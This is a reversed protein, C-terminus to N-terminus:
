FDTKVSVLGDDTSEIRIVFSFRNRDICMWFDKEPFVDRLEPDFFHRGGGTRLAQLREEIDPMAEGTLLSQLYLACLEDEEAPALGEKGMCVLTVIEPNRQRIYGAIAQANVFSGTLIEEAHIANAVGQTGASTTHIIRKGRIIEPDVTSPSNGFDFGDLKLGHREGILIAEPDKERWALADEIAGVPRIEEAGMAYLWCELSFARFVDIIVVLGEAQRAGEILHNIRIEM